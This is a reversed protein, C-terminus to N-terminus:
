RIQFFVGDIIIKISQQDPNMSQRNAVAKLFDQQTLSPLTQPSIEISIAKKWASGSIKHETLLHLSSGDSYLNLKFKEAIKVLSQYTYIGIHQGEHLAYYWWQDPQPHDAPLLQTSFLLNKSFKLLKEIEELPNVFHEFVEFATVLDYKEQQNGEFGQYFINQCYQDYGYFDFGLDRMLRVFLGYGCGYDLFKGQPNFCSIILEQTIQSFKFNRGVLGVDSIAIPDAYAVELWYPKETQVFGCVSCKFYDVAYRNLVTAQAFYPSISGCVKCFSNQTFKSQSKVQM